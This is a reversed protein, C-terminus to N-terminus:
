PLPEAEGLQLVTLIASSAIRSDYTRQALVTQLASGVTGMLPQIAALNLHATRSSGAV